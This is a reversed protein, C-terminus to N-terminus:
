GDEVDADGTSAEVGADPPLDADDPAGEGAADPVFTTADPGGDGTQTVGGDSPAQVPPKGSIPFASLSCTRGPDEDPGCLLFEVQAHTSQAVLTSLSAPLSLQLDLPVADGDRVSPTVGRPLVSM